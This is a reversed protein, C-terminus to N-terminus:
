PSGLFFYMRDTVVLAFHYKCFPYCNILVQFYLPCIYIEYIGPHFCGCYAQPNNFVHIKGFCKLNAGTFVWLVIYTAPHVLKMSCNQAISQFLYLGPFLINVLNGAIFCIDYTTNKICYRFIARIDLYLWIQINNGTILSQM